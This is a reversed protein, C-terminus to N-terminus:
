FKVFAEGRLMTQDLFTASRREVQAYDSGVRIVYTQESLDVAYKINEKKSCMRHKSWRARKGDPQSVIERNPISGDVVGNTTPVEVIDHLVKPDDQVM